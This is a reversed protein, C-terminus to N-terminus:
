PTEHRARFAGLGVVEAVVCGVLRIAANGVPATPSAGHVETREVGRFRLEFVSPNQGLGSGGWAGSWACLHPWGCRAVDRGVLHIEDEPPVRLLVVAARVPCGGVFERLVLLCEPEHQRQVAVRWRGLESRKRQLGHPLLHNVRAPASFLDVLADPPDLPHELPGRALLQNRYGHELREGCNGAKLGASSGRLLVFGHLRHVVRDHGCRECVKVTSDGPHNLELPQGPASRALRAPNAPAVEVRGLGDPREPGNLELGPV